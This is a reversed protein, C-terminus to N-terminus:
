RTRTSVIRQQRSLYADIRSHCRGEKMLDYVPTLLRTSTKSYFLSQTLVRLDGHKYKHDIDSFKDAFQYPEAKPGFAMFRLIDEAINAIQTAEAGNVSYLIPYNRLGHHDDMPLVSPFGTIAAAFAATGGVWGIM